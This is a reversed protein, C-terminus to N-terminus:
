LLLILITILIADSTVATTRWFKKKSTENDLKKNLDLNLQKETAVTEELIETDKILAQEKQLHLDIEKKQVEILERDAKIEQIFLGIDSKLETNTEKLAEIEESPSSYVPEPTVPEVATSDNSVIAVTDYKTILSNVTKQLAEAKETAKKKDEAVALLRESVKAIEIKQNQHQQELMQIKADRQNIIEQYKHDKYRSCSIGVISAVLVLSSVWIVTKNKTISYLTKITFM